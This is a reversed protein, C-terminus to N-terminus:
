GATHTHIDTQRRDLPSNNLYFWHGSADFIFLLLYWFFFESFYIKFIGGKERLKVLTKRTKFINSLLRDSPTNLSICLNEHKKNKNYVIVVVKICVRVYIQVSTPILMSSYCLHYYVALYKNLSVVVFNSDSFLCFVRWLNKVSLLLCRTPNHLWFDKLVRLM